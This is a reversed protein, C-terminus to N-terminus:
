ATEGEPRPTVDLSQDTHAPKHQRKQVLRASRREEADSLPLALPSEAIGCRLQRILHTLQKEQYALQARQRDNVLRTYRNRPM